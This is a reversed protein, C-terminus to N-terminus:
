DFMSHKNSPFRSFFLIVMEVVNKLLPYLQEIGDYTNKMLEISSHMSFPPVEYTPFSKKLMKFKFLLERKENDFNTKLPLNNIDKVVKNPIYNGKMELETLSPPVNQPEKSYKSRPTTSVSKEEQLIENLRQSLNDDSSAVSKEKPSEISPEPSNVEPNYEEDIQEPKIKDKNELLGLYLRPMSEFTKDKELYDLTENQVKNIQINQKKTM